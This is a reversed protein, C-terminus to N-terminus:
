LMSMDVALNLGRIHAGLQKDLNAAREKGGFAWRVPGTRGAYEEMMKNVQGIIDDCNKLISLIQTKILDPFVGGGGDEGDRKLLDLTLTLEGLLKSIASLDERADRATRIFSIIALSTDNGAKALGVCAATISLPEIPM